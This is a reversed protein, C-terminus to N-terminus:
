EVGYYFSDYPMAGGISSPDAQYMIQYFSELTDKMEEGSLYTLNCQPIARAAIAPNPAIGYDAVLQAAETRNEEMDMYRISLRYATLFDEVAQPHEQIYDTRAVICGQALAGEELNDWEASLSLAERVGSDKVLLATAAPVPLMCIGSDSTTLKATIEQPTLWEINVQSPEVGNEMLLHNLIFQPNSGKATSPAYLTKGALDGVTHVTDGKELIYLVGLTNVALVQIGGDTKGSLNAAVNTAVAAIDADGNVLANVVEPNETAVTFSKIVAADGKEYDALLKAAGVGTPGSLVMLDPLDENVPSPEEEPPAQPEVGEPQPPAPDAAPPTQVCGGLLSLTMAAALLLSLKKKMTYKREHNLTM